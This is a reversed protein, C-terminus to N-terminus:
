KGKRAKKRALSVDIKIRKALPRYIAQPDWALGCLRTTNSCQADYDLGTLQKYYNNVSLWAARYNDANVIGEVRAIVRFGRGSVTTYAIFTHPDDSAMRLTAAMRDAPVHDFDAMVYGTYGRVCSKDKGGDLVAQCVIAPCSCKVSGMEKKVSDAAAKDGASVAKDFRDVLARYEITKERLTDNRIITVIGEWTKPEPATATLTPFYTVDNTM